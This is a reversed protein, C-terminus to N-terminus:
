ETAVSPTADAMRPGSAPIGVLIEVAVPQGKRTAPRFRWQSFAAMALQDAEEQVKQLVKLDQVTGDEGIRGHLVITRTNKAPELAPRYFDFRREARPPALTEEPALTIQGSPATAPEAPVLSYELVWNRNPMPLYATYVKGGRLVGYIRLGGGGTPGSSILLGNRQPATVEAVPFIWKVLMPPLSELNGPNTPSISVSGARPDTDGGGGGGSRGSGIATSSDGGPGPRGTGAGAVGNPDGGLAGPGGGEPSVSFEGERIGPPVELANGLPAPNISLSLLEVSGEVGAVAVPPSAIERAEASAAPAAPAAQRPAIAIPLQPALNPIVAATSFVQGTIQPPAPVEPRPRPAPAPAAPKPEPRRVVAVPVKPPPPSVTLDARGIVIDPLAVDVSIRATPPQLITQTKNDPVPPNSVATLRLDVRPSGGRKPPGPRDGAGPKGGPGPAKLVPLYLIEREKPLPIIAAVTLAEPPESFLAGIPAYLLLSAVGCHLAVSAFVSGGLRGRRRSVRSSFIEGPPMWEPRPTTWLAALNELCERRRSPRPILFMQQVQKQVAIERQLNTQLRRKRADDWPREDRWPKEDRDEGPYSV